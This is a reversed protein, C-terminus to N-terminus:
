SAGKEYPLCFICPTFGAKLAAEKTPYLVGHGAWALGALACSPKENELDHFHKLRNKNTDALYRQKAM